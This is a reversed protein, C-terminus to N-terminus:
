VWGKRKRLWWELSLLTAFILLFYWNDWIRREALSTRETASTDLAAITKGLEEPAVAAGGTIEAIQRLLSRDAAPNELERDDQFVHFRASDRGIEKGNRMGVVEARYEGPKGSAFYFGKAQDGEAFLQVPEPKPAPDPAAPAYPAPSDVRTVTTQYQVDPIPERKADRATATLDLKQGVAVRRADLKLKVESEGQDEKHALWLIAQRWFRRHAALSQDDARAWPWTEGGFALTRGQGTEMGVMLPEHSGQVELLVFASPKPQGFRNAGTLPPLAQWARRSEDPNGGLRLVYNQLGSAIPEIKLGDPPELQGDGGHMAVPAIGSLATNGWGGEGFSSRGGLMILGAGRAVATALLKHQRTSLYEAAVDGLIFVDYNGPAFLADDLLGRDGVAPQRIAQSDVHIEKAADLTRVLYRLEWTFNPGQVYLVKLGGKLVNLYTTYENNARVLEGDQPRARLTVRKEGPTQPLYKLGTIPLIESGATPRVTTRAVVGDGPEGEVVMEVEIPKGAFGRASLTARIEPQNKVFVFPGILFDSVAVDKSGAGANEDGVGVTTVPILKGKLQGAAVLPPVGANSAGDGVLVISAINIGPNQKVAEILATGMATEMGDPKTAEDLKDERLDSAFTYTRVEFDKSKEAVSKRAEEVAKRAVQMRTQGNLEDGIEMSRSRDLLFLVAAAQRKKVPLNVSPRLAALLCLLVAALRLGLALWRWGGTSGRLRQRYAWITLIMVALSAAAVVPWPGIPNLSISM